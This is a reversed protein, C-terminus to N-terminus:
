GPATYGPGPDRRVPDAAPHGAPGPEPEPQDAVGRALRVASGLRRLVADRAPGLRRLRERVRRLLLVRLADRLVRDRLRGRERLRGRDPRVARREGRRAGR